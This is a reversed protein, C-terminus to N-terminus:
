LAHWRRIEDTMDKANFLASGAALIDAGSQVCQPATASNVGGDIEILTRLGNEDILERAKRVKPLVERMFSQGGFGPNVTMILLLDAEPLFAEVNKLDTGPNLSIGAKRGLRHIERLCHLADDTAEVHVTLYDAGAACFREVYREPKVIMLHVDFVMKTHPRLSEVVGPGITINPVFVGDMVDVHAMDAEAKEMRAIEEALRSFDASLISPAVKVM